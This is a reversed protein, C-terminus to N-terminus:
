FVVQQRSQTPAHTREGGSRPRLPRLKVRGRGESARPRLGEEEHHQRRAKDEAERHQMLREFADRLPALHAVLTQFTKRDVSLVNVNTMTRVTASRPEENFM